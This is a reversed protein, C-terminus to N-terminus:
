TQRVSHATINFAAFPRSRPLQTALTPMYLNSGKMRFETLSQTLFWGREGVEILPLTSAEVMCHKLDISFDSVGSVDLPLHIRPPVVSPCFYRNIDTWLLPLYTSLLSLVSELLARRASTYRETLRFLSICSASYLMVFVPRRIERLAEPDMSAWPEHSSYYLDLPLTVIVWSLGFILLLWLTPELYRYASRLPM